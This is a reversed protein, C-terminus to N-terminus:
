NRRHRSFRRGPRGGPIGRSLIDVAGNGALALLEPCVQPSVVKVGAGNELLTKVKRLAVDGGGCVVCRKDKINLFVPYYNM